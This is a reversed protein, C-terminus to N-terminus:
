SPTPGPHLELVCCKASGGSHHIESLDVPVVDYGRTRLEFILRHARRPVLARRGDAVLNLGFTSADAHSAHLADPWRQALLRRSQPSFAPPHYVITHDDLAALALDLHYWRPDVLELSIVDREVVEALERHSEIATRPGHGALAVGDVLVVDGEGEFPHTAVRLDTVGHEALWRQYAPEEGRREPMAMHSALARGGVVVAANAAFVMDPQGPIPDILDVRHGLAELARRLQAWQAMARRPHVPREPHMWPNIRYVVDFAEPPCMLYHRAPPAMDEAAAAAVTSVPDSRM